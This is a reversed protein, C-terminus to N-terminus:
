HARTLLIYQTTEFTNGDMIMSVTNSSASYTATMYLQGGNDPNFMRFYYTNGTSGEAEIGAPSMQCMASLDIMLINNYYILMNNSTFTIQTGDSAIWNDQLWTPVNLSDKLSPSSSCSVIVLSLAITFVISFVKVRKM